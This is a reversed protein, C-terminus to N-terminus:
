KMTSRLAVIEEYDKKDVKTPKASTEYLKMAKNVLQLAEERDSIDSGRRKASSNRKWLMKALFSYTSIRLEDKPINNVANTAFKIADDNSKFPHNYYIEALAQWAESCDKRGLTELITNLDDMMPQVAAAQDMLSHTQCERGINACHWMYCQPDKPDEKIAEEAYKIGKGFVEQKGKDTTEEQGLIVCMKSLRWLVDAKQAGAKANPLMAELKKVCETYDSGEGRRCLLDVQKLDIQQAFASIVAGAFLLLSILVKKVIKPTM